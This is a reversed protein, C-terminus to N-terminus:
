PCANQLHEDFTAAFAHRGSGDCAARFYFYPTDAPNAVAQLSSLGPNAIPGPPLEASRYTNYPSDLALDDLSLPSKWWGGDPQQGLAYQVTPDSELLMGAALRNFFVSAIIPREDAVMAEREIMSALTVAQHLNLGRAALASALDPNIRAIFDEVMATALDSATADPSLRYTDPFLYGELTAPPPPAAPLPYAAASATAALFDAPSFAFGADPIAAAIEERRWGEPVTFVIEIAAATQLSEAIQRVTMAGGLAYRGAQIGVDLGRYRLYTRLLTGDRVIGAAQLSEIVSAATAGEEVELGLVAQPDGAPQDLSPSRSLLYLGLLGREVPSLGASPQGLTGEAFAPLGFTASAGLGLLACAALAVLSLAATRLCGRRNSRM